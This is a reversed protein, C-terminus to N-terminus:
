SRDTQGVEEMGAQKLEKYIGNGGAEHDEGEAAPFRPYIEGWYTSRGPTSNSCIQVCGPWHRIAQLKMYISSVCVPCLVVPETLNGEENCSYLIHLLAKGFFVLLLIFFQEFIWRLVIQKLNIM